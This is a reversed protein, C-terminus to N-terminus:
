LGGPGGGEGLPARGLNTHLVVGTGNIVARLHPRCSARARATTQAALTDLDPLVEVTGDLIGRRLEELATRAAEKLAYYPLEEQASAIAPHALLVDMKPLRQLLQRNM